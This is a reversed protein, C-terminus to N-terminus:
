DFSISSVDFFQFGHLAAEEAERAAVLGSVMEFQERWEEEFPNMIYCSDSTAPSVELQLEPLSVGQGFCNGPMSPTSFTYHEPPPLTLGSLAPSSFSFPTSQQPGTSLGETNVTLRSSLSQLLSSADQNPETPQVKAAAATNRLCTHTGHYTVDYVTADEDARQV